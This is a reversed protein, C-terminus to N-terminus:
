KLRSCCFLTKWWFGLGIVINRKRIKTQRVDSSREVSFVKSSHFKPMTPYIYVKNRQFLNHLLSFLPEVYYQNHKHNRRCFHNFEDYQENQIVYRNYISTSIKLPIYSQEFCWLKMVAEIEKFSYSRILAQICLPISKDTILHRPM